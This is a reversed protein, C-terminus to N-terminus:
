KEGSLVWAATLKRWGPISPSIKDIITFLPVLFAPGPPTYSPAPVVKVNKWGAEEMWKKLNKDTNLFSRVEHEDGINRFNLPNYANSEIVCIHGGTKTVRRWETLSQVPDSLHHIIDAGFVSDFTGEPHPLHNADSVEFSLEPRQVRKGAREVMSQSLDQARYKGAKLTDVAFYTLLGSGAGVELVSKQAQPGLTAAIITAKRKYGRNTTRELMGGEKEYDDVQNEYYKLQIEDHKSINESM